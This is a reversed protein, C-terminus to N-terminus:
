GRRWEVRIAMVCVEVPLGWAGGPTLYTIVATMERGSYTETAPDWERLHLVDGARYPRDARRIEYTKAGSFVASFPDPWTKLEHIM